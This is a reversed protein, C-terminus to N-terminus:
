RVKLLEPNNRCDWVAVIHCIDSEIFYIIKYHHLVVLYRFEVEEDMLSLERAGSLPFTELRSTVDFAEQKIKDATSVSGKVYRYYQCIDRLDKRATQQWLVKVM